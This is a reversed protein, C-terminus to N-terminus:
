RLGPDGLSLADAHGHDDVFSYTIDFDICDLSLNTFVLHFNSRIPNAPKKAPRLTVRFEDNKKKHYKRSDQAEVPVMEAVASEVEVYRFLAEDWLHFQATDATLM